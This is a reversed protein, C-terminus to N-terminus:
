SKIKSVIFLLLLAGLLAAVLSGIFGYTKIGILSFVFKGIFSGSIGIVLNWLLGFGQGKWLLGALWGVLAGIALSILLSMM